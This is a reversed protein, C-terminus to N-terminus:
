GRRCRLWPWTLPHRARLLVERIRGVKARPRQKAWRALPGAPWWAPPCPVAAVVSALGQGSQRLRRNERRHRALPALRVSCQERTAPRRARTIPSAWSTASGEAEEGLLAVALLEGDVPGSRSPAVRTPANRSRRCSPPFTMNARWTPGSRWSTAAATWGSSTLYDGGPLFERDRYRRDTHGALARVAQGLRLRALLPAM